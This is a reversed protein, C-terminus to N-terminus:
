GKKRGRKKLSGSHERYYGKDAADPIQKDASHGTMLDINVAITAQLDTSYESCVKALLKEM